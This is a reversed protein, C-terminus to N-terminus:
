GQGDSFFCLFLLEACIEGEMFSICVVPGVKPPFFCFPLFFEVKFDPFLLGLVCYTLFFLFLYLFVVCIFFYALCVSTWIFSFIPLSGSFFNVIIITFIILVKFVFISFICSNILLSRSNNFFYVYFLSLM